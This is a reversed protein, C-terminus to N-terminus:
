EDGGAPNRYGPTFRGERALNGFRTTEGDFSLRITGVPGHRQKGIIVEAVGRAADMAEQWTFHEPTGEKPEAQELYYAERYVFWVMDADQEISGSERLDSLKPRKDDRTEVQRSLQSLGIVPVSLDKALGKLGGTIEGIEQVRNQNPKDSGRSLQMYDVVVLSLGKQRKLRRARTVIKAISTGGGDDIHIPYDRIEQAAERLRGFEMPTIEGKRIKDGSVGAREALIRGALQEGSMELSYFAVPEGRRAAAFAINTALATKGSGPRGAIVILDSPHLGGTKADLDILDTTLGTVGGDSQFAKAAVDMFGDIYDGFPRFGGSDAKAEALAFLAQEARDIQESTSLPREMGGIAESRMIDAIRILERRRHTDRISAAYSAVSTAPPAMEVLDALYRLGGLEEFAPDGKLKEALLIPDAVIDKRVFDSILQWCRAHGPEYMEAPQLGDARDFAANDYMVAGLLAQEAPINHPLGAPGDNAPADRDMAPVFANM